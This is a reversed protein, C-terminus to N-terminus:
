WPETKFLVKTVTEISAHTLAFTGYRGKPSQAHLTVTAACLVATLLSAATYFIKKMVNRETLEPGVNRLSEEAGEMCADYLIGNDYITTTEIPQKPDVYIRM